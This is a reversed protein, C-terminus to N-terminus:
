GSIPKQTAEASVGTQTRIDSGSGSRERTATSVAGDDRQIGM